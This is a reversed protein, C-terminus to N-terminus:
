ANRIVEFCEQTTPTVSSSFASKLRDEINSFLTNEARVSAILDGERVYEGDTKLLVLGCPDPFKGSTGISQKQTEVLVSRLVETNIKLFGESSSTMSYTHGDRLKEVKSQFAEFSAGQAALNREFHYLLRDGNPQETKGESTLSSAMAFCMNAHRELQESARGAFIDALALLSEGRGIFPQYPVSANTLFCVADIQLLKSVACFRQANQRAEGWSDGFNGHPAVRIDLGVRSLGMALKKALLSAIVLPATKQAGVSQRYLFLEADRPAHNKGALVHAYGNKELCSSVEERSLNVNYGSIQALVDVGGAPRGPVALKPVLFELDRLYLPCLLTSLSTPGGTSAVDAAQESTKLSIVEGSDACCKALYAIEHDTVSYSKVLRVLRDMSPESGDKIFADVIDKFGNM